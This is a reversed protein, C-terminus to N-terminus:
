RGGSGVGATDAPGFRLGAFPDPEGAFLRQMLRRERSDIAGIFQTADGLRSFAEFGRELFNQLVSVGAAEAPARALRLLRGIWARRVVRALRRALDVILWIQREREAARGAARYAAAYREPDIAASGLGAAVAADLELTLVELELADRLIEMAPTPLTKEMLRWARRLDADRPAVDHTGYIDSLFFEAAPAHRPDARLDAYSAALRASQWARLQELVPALAADVGLTAALRDKKELLEHVADAVARSL